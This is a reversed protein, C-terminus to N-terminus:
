TSSVPEIIPRGMTRSMVIYGSKRSLCLAMYYKSAKRSVLVVTLLSDFNLVAIHKILPNLTDMQKFNEYYYSKIIRLTLNPMSPFYANIMSTQNHHVLVDQFLKVYAKSFVM